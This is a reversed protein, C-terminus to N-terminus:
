SLMVLNGASFSPTPSQHANYNQKAIDQALKLETQLESQITSLHHLFNSATPVNSTHIPLVSFSPHFGFNAYFPTTHTADHVLNNYQFEALSIWEVWDDQQYSCFNWLYQEVCQNIHETQTDTQPHFATSLKQKIGLRTTLEKWFSSTFLSDCDSIISSPLGHLKFISSIYLQALGHADLTKITPIFHAQKSLHDIIVLLTDLGHSSPLDTIFDM